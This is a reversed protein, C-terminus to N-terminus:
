MFTGTSQVSFPLNENQQDSFQKGSNSVHKNKTLLFNHPNVLESTLVYWGTFGRKKSNVTEKITSHNVVSLHSKLRDFLSVWIFAEVFNSLDLYPMKCYAMKCSPMECQRWHAQQATCHLLMCFLPFLDNMVMWWWLHLFDKLMANVLWSM